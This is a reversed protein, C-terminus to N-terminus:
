TRITLPALLVCSLPATGSKLNPGSMTTLVVGIPLAIGIHVTKKAALAIVGICPSFAARKKARVMIAFVPRPLRAAHEAREKPMLDLGRPDVPTRGSSYSLFGARSATPRQCVNGPAGRAAILESTFSPVFLIKARWFL